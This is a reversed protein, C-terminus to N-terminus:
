TNKQTKDYTNNNGSHKKRDIAQKHIVRCKTSSSRANQASEEKSPKIVSKPSFYLTESTKVYRKVCRDELSHFSLIVIIANPAAFHEIKKLLEPLKTLEENVEIRIAQFVQSCIRMFFPRNKVPYSRKICERLDHTTNLQKKKRAQVINEVLKKNHKLEGYHYFLDSLEQKSYSNLIDKAHTEQQTNMRMDLPGDFRHSFGREAQDLQYSSVGLDLFFKTFSTLNHKHMIRDFNLAIDHHVHANTDNKFLTQCYQVASPDRDIGIYTGSSSLASVLHQSHGGFGATGEIIIDTKQLNLHTLVENLMVPIHPRSNM